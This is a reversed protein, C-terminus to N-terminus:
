EEKRSTQSSAPSTAGAVIAALELRLERTLDIPRGDIHFAGSAEKKSAHVKVRLTGGSGVLLVADIRSGPPSPTTSELTISDPGLSLVSAEGGLVWRLHRTL